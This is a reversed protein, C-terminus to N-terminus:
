NRKATGDHDGLLGAGELDVGVAAAGVGAVGAADAQSAEVGWHVDTLQLVELDLLHGALNGPDVRVRAQAVTTVPVDVAHGLLPDLLVLLGPLRALAAPLGM